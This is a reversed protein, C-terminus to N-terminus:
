SAVYRIVRMINAADESDPESSFKDAIIICAGAREAHVRQLDVINLM